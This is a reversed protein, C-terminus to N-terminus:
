ARWFPKDIETAAAARTLGIDALMHDSLQALESRGRTRQEWAAVTSMVSHAFAEARQIFTYTAVSIEEHLASTKTATTM